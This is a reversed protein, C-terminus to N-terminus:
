RTPLLARTSAAAVRSPLRQRDAIAPAALTFRSVILALDGSERRLNEASATAEEVLAANQQTGEELQVLAQNIQEIGSTQEASAVAIEGIIERVKGVSGVVEEMTAGAQDVLKSGADVKDVSDGILAKIERAAGASRQALNRVESAVVAFGRGQEGARAAEVAANLALINTQFAIGDIVGIIDVIKRASDNIEGMTEVVRAVAEGGKLAVESASSALKNALGANEANQKVTSTLEEMASATEELSGAQQETRASLSASGQASEDSATAITASSAKIKGVLDALQAQMQKLAYLLSSRDSQRVEVDMALNGDAVARAVASAYEPEGGLQALLKRVVIVGLGGALLVVVLTVGVAVHRTTAANAQANDFRSHASTDLQKGMESLLSFVQTAHDKVELRNVEGAGKIDGAQVLEVQHKMGAQMKLYAQQLKQVAARQELGGNALLDAIAGDAKMFREANEQKWTAISAPDGIAIMRLINIDVRTLLGDIAAVMTVARFDNNYLEGQERSANDLRGILFASLGALAFILIGIVGLLKQGIRLKM